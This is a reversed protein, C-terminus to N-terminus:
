KKYNERPSVGFRAKYARFFTSYDSFGCSSYIASPHNGSELMEKALLLRKVTIYQRVSSGTTEKFLSYLHSRSIFFRKAISDPTIDQSLNTNIYNIIQSSIRISRETHNNRSLFVNYIESLLAHLATGAQLASGSKPDAMKKLCSIFFTDNFDERHFINNQGLERNYFPELLTQFAPFDDFIDKNLGVTIREYPTSSSIDIKHVEGSNFLLIDYPKLPYPSGEIWFRGSGSLFYFLEFHEHAHMDFKEPSPNEELTHRVNFKKGEIFCIDMNDGFHNYCMHPCFAINKSVSQLEM